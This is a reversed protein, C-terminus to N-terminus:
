DDDYYGESSSSPEEDDYYEDLYEDRFEEEATSYAGDRLLRGEISPVTEDEVDILVRIRLFEDVLRYGSQALVFIDNEVFWELTESDCIDIADDRSIFTPPTRSAAYLLVRLSELMGDHRLRHVLPDYFYARDEYCIARFSGVLDKISLIGDPDDFEQEVLHYGLYQLLHPHGGSLEVLRNVINSSYQLSKDHSAADHVVLELKTTILDEADEPPLPHVTLPKALFRGIGSDEKIMEQLYSGVGAFVFRVNKVEEFQLKTLIARFMQAVPVSCKDVEDVILLLLDTHEPAHKLLIEQL